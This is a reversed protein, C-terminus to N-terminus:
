QGAKEIIVFQTETVPMVSLRSQKVLLMDKLEAREKIAKLSVPVKLKKKPKLDVQVWQGPHESDPDPYAEKLIQGLGVVAKDDGSHYILVTDGKKMKSLFIKAQHNRIGNWNTQGDKELQSYSYTSPETKVLWYAM